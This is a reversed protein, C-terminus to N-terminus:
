PKLNPEGSMAAYCAPAAAPQGPPLGAVLRQAEDIEAGLGALDLRLPGDSVGPFGSRARARAVFRRADELQRIMQSVDAECLSVRAGTVSARAELLDNHLEAARLARDLEWRGSAGCLWGAFLMALLGVCVGVRTAM